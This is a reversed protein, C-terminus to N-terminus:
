HRPFSSEGLTHLFSFHALTRLDEFHAAYQEPFIAWLAVRGQPTYSSVRSYSFRSRPLYIFAMNQLHSVIKRYIYPQIENPFPFDSSRNCISFCSQRKNNWIAFPGQSRSAKNRSNTSYPVGHSASAAAGSLSRCHNESEVVEEWVAAEESCWIALEEEKGRGCCGVGGLGDGADWAGIVWSPAWGSM